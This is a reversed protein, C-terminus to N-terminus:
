PRASYGLARIEPDGDLIQMLVSAALISKARVSGYYDHSLMNRQLDHLCRRSMALPQGPKLATRVFPAYRPNIKAVGEAWECISMNDSHPIIEDISKMNHKPSPARARTVILLTDLLYTAALIIKPRKENPIASIARSPLPKRIDVKKRHGMGRDDRLPQMTEPPPHM